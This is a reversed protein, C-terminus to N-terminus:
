REAELPLRARVRFAGDERGVELEGGYVRVRERMGVQGRGSGRGDTRGAGLANIVELEVADEAYRVRVAAEVLGAHKRANTLAEQVIRFAALDVGPPLQGPEGEESEREQETDHQEAKEYPQNSQGTINEGGIM